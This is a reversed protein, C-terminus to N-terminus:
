VLKYVGVKNAGDTGHSERTLSVEKREGIVGGAVGLCVSSYPFAVPEFVEFGKM